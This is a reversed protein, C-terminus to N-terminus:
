QKMKGGRSSEYYKFSNRKLFSIGDDVSIQVLFFDSQLIIILVKSVFNDGNNILCRGFSDNRAIPAPKLGDSVM